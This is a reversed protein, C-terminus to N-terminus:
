LENFPQAYDFTGRMSPDYSQLRRVQFHPAWDPDPPIIGYPQTLEFGFRRYYRLDGLLVVMPEDLADAGGLVAHMLASGVGTRQRDPAVSIPGLGLTPLPGTVTRLTARTCIVHGVISGDVDQAVLSLAPLFWPGTRLQDLLGVEIPTSGDPQRFAAATLQRVTDHDAATERRILV